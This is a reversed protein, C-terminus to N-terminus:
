SSGMSMRNMAAQIKSMGIPQKASTVDRTNRRPNEYKAVKWQVMDIWRSVTKGNVKHEAEFPILECNLMGNNKDTYYDTTFVIDKPFQLLIQMENRTDDDIIARRLVNNAQESRECYRPDGSQKLASHARSYCKLYGESVCPMKVLIQNKNLLTASYKDLVYDGFDGRFLIEYGDHLNGNSDEVGDFPVLTFLLNREPRSINVPLILDVPLSVLLTLSQVLM